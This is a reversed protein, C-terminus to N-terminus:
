QLRFTIRLPDLQAPIAEKIIKSFAIEQNLRNATVDLRSMALMPHLLMRVAIRIHVENTRFVGKDTVDGIDFTTLPNM